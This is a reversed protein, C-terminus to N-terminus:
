IESLALIETEPRREKKTDNCLNENRNSLTAAVAGNYGQYQVYQINEKETVRLYGFVRSFTM